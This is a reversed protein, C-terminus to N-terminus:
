NLVKSMKVECVSSPARITPMKAKRSKPIARYKMIRIDTAVAKQPLWASPSDVPGSSDNDVDGETLRCKVKTSTNQFPLRPNSPLELIITNM